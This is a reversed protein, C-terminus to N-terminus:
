SIGSPNADWWDTLAEETIFGAILDSQTKSQDTMYAYIRAQNVKNSPNATNYDGMLTYLQAQSTIPTGSSGGGSGGFYVVRAVSVGLGFVPM